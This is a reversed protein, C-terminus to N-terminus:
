GSYSRKLAAEFFDDTDFTGTPAAEKSKKYEDIASHIEAVTSYGCGHWREIIKDAYPVSPKSIATVTIEYAERVVDMGYHYDAIWKMFCENERKTLARKGIGFMSRLEGEVSNTQEKKQLYEDLEVYETIGSDFLSIATKELYRLSRKGIAACYNSLLIVYDSSLALYDMLGIVTKVEAPTLIKGFIQSCCDIVRAAGPTRELFSASQEITYDPIEDASMRPKKENEDSESGPKGGVSGSIMTGGASRGVAAGDTEDAAKKQKEGKALRYTLVGAKKWYDVLGVADDESVSLMEALASITVTQNDALILLAALQERSADETAKKAALAPINLIKEGFSLQVKM